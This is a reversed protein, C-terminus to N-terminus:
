HSRGPGHGPQGVAVQHGCQPRPGPALLGRVGERCRQAWGPSGCCGSLVVFCGSAPQGTCRESRPGSSQGEFAPLDARSEVGAVVATPVTRSTSGRGRHHRPARLSRAMPVASLAPWATSYTSGCSSTPWSSRQKRASPPRSAKWQAVLARYELKGSRTAANRRLERSITAPSRGIRRAIERVGCDQVRLLAIEEREAFSLYRGSPEDLSLPRMGGAHRFWRTGVPVSVGVAISAQATSVGTAVVRWFERQVQRSPEPRGPSRMAPRLARDARWQRRVGVPVDSTKRSWDATVM